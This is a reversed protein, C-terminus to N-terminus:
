VGITAGPYPTLHERGCIHDLHHQMHLIYDEIIFQLSVPSADAIRCQASLREQPIRRLVPVIAKNLLAWTDVLDTWRMEAYGGLEVWGRGDYSPGSYQGELAARIFRVCNNTASDILHGLEQKRSWGETAGPRSNAAQETVDLLGPEENAIVRALREPLSNMQNM